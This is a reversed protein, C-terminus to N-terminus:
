GVISVPEVMVAERLQHMRHPHLPQTLAKNYMKALHNSCVLEILRPSLCRCRSTRTSHRFTRDNFISHLISDMCLHSFWVRTESSLGQSLCALGLTTEQLSGRSHHKGRAMRRLRKLRAKSLSLRTSWRRSIRMILISFNSSFRMTSGM